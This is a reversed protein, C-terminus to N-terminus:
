GVGTREVVMGGGMCTCQCLAYLTLAHGTSSGHLLGALVRGCMGSMYPYMHMFFNDSNMCM